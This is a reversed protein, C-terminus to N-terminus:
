HPSPKSVDRAPLIWILAPDLGILFFLQHRTVACVRSLTRFQRADYELPGLDSVTQKRKQMLRFYLGVILPVLLLTVLM